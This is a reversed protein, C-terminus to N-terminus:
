GHDPPLHHHEQFVPSATTRVRMNDGPHVSSDPGGKLYSGSCWASRGLPSQTTLGLVRARLKTVSNLTADAIHICINM